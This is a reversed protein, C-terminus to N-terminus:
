QKEKEQVQCKKEEIKIMDLQAAVIHACVGKNPNAIGECSM